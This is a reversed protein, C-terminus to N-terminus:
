YRVYSVFKKMTWDNKKAKPNMRGPPFNLHPGLFKTTEDCEREYFFDKIVAHAPDHSNIQIKMPGLRLWDSDSNSYFCRLNAREQPTQFILTNILLRNFQPVVLHVIYFLEM